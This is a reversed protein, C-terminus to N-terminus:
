ISQRPKQGWASIMPATTLILEGSSVNKIHQDIEQQTALKAELLKPAILKTTAIELINCASMGLPFFGDASVNEMGMTNLLNPLKRGFELDVERSSMLARFSNRLRNALLEKDTLTNICALPQLAPDADEILIWGGPKLANLMNKLAKEREPIHVLVLRAHIFDFQRQPQADLAIDHTCVDVTSPMQLEQTMWSTDIDTAFVYGDTGVRRALEMIVSTGGAGVEWCHWGAEVGVKDFHAFSVPDFIEALAAFRAGAEINKNDLLYRKM